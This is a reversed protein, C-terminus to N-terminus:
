WQHQLVHIAQLKMDATNYSTRIKIQDMNQYTLFVKNQHVTFLFQFTHNVAHPQHVYNIM